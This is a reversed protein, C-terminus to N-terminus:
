SPSIERGQIHYAAKLFTHMMEVTIIMGDPVEFSLPNGPINLFEIHLEMAEKCSYSAYKYPIM